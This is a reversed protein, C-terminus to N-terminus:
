SAKLVKKRKSVLSNCLNNKKWDEIEKVTCKDIAEIISQQSLDATLAPIILVLDTIGNMQNRSLESKYRGFISEIVDSCCLQKENKKSIRKSYENHYDLMMTKFELLKGRKIKKLVAKCKKITVKSMGNNKLIVSLEEIVSMMTNLEVIFFRMDSVWQLKEKEEPTTEDRDYANLARIGWNSLIDVNLFRAKSRQNPPILHAQKSCCLKFRMQGALHTFNKFELDNSYIRSLFVAIAHTVDYNWTINAKRLATKISNSGDAIAYIITGLENKIKNLEIEIDEANWRERSKVLLPVMDQIQLPRTFDVNKLQIGLILFVKEQGIGISEDLIIIWDDSKLKVETLKYYGLKKIWLMSTSHSPPTLSLNLYLNFTMFIKSLSRYSCSTNIKSSLVILITM